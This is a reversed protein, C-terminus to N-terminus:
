GPRECHSGVTRKAPDIQAERMYQAVPRATGMGYKELDPHHGGAAPAWGLLKRVRDRVAEQSREMAKEHGAHSIDVFVNPKDFREYVHSCVAAAPSFLDYGHTWMRAALLLEEGWFLYALHPDYPVDRVLSGPGFLFGGAVFYTKLPVPRNGHQMSLFSVMGDGEFKGKCIHTTVAGRRVEDTMDAPPYHTLVAGRSGPPLPCRRQQDIIKADWDQVFDMHSDIQLFYREGRYMQACFYRAYAPGKAENHRMHHVRIHSDFCGQGEICISGDPCPPDGKKNQICLGVFINRPASAREFLSRLTASCREDRYSAVSVFISDSGPEATRFEALNLNYPSRWGQNRVILWLLIVLFVIALLVAPLWLVWSARRPM